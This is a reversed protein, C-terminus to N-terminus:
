AVFFGVGLSIHPQPTRAISLPFRPSITSSQLALLTTLLLSTGYPKRKVFNDIEVDDIKVKVTLSKNSTLPTINSGFGYLNISANEVNFNNNLVASARITCIASGPDILGDVMQGDIDITKFLHEVASNATQNDSIVM